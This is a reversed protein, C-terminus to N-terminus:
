FVWGVVGWLFSMLYYLAILAISGVSAGFLCLLLRELDVVGEDEEEVRKANVILIRGDEELKVTSRSVGEITYTALLIGRKREGSPFIVNVLHM